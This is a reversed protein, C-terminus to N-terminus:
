GANTDQVRALLGHELQVPRQFTLKSVSHLGQERVRIGLSHLDLRWVDHALHSIQLVDEVGGAEQRGVRQVAGLIRADRAAELDFVSFHGNKTERRDAGLAIRDLVLSLVIVDAVDVFALAHLAISQFLAYCKLLTLNWCIENLYCILGKEADEIIAARIKYSPDRLFRIKEMYIDQHGYFVDFARDYKTYTETDSELDSRDSLDDDYDNDDAEEEDDSDDEIWERWLIDKQMEGNDEDSTDDDSEEDDSEKDTSDTAIEVGGEGPGKEEVDEDSEEMNTDNSGVQDEDAYCQRSAALRADGARRLECDPRSGSAATDLLADCEVDCELFISSEEVEEVEVEEVEVEEVEKVEEVEEVEVEEVEMEEVEVEEVEVEEVEVEEVEVEEVEVEEVEVEEVEEEEVEEEKEEKEKEGEEADVGHALGPTATAPLLKKGHRRPAELERECGTLTQGQLPIQKTPKAVRKKSVILGLSGRHAESGIVHTKPLGLLNSRRGSAKAHLKPTFSQSSAKDELNLWFPKSSAKATLKPKFSRSSAEAQLKPQLSRSSAKAQLKPKFSQSSAKAQLKPKFSQSSAKAQLKTRM